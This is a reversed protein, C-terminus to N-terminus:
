AFFEGRNCRRAKVPNLDKFLIEDGIRCARFLNAGHHTIVAQVDCQELRKAIEFGQGLWQPGFSKIACFAFKIDHLFKTNGKQQNTGRNMGFRQTANFARGMVKKFQAFASCFPTKEHAIFCKAPTAVDIIVPVSPFNHAACIMWVDTYDKITKM